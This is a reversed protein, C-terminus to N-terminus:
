GGLSHIAVKTAGLIKYSEADQAYVIISSKKLDIDKPLNLSTKGENSLTRQKFDRVVNDHELKRGRNEGRTVDTSIGREVLAINIIANKLVDDVAYNLRVTNKSRSIESVAIQVSPISALATRIASSAQRKSSGVFETKGNVIMQPTYVGRNGFKSAYTYQRETFESNSFPDKWGLRNWYDVHFSLGYIPLDRDGSQDIFESLLKDASPCSSCGQSTFLEVVVANQNEPQHITLEKPSGPFFSFLIASGTLFSIIVSAKLYM